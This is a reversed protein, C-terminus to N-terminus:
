YGFSHLAGIQEPTLAIQGVVGSENTWTLVIMLEQKRGEQVRGGYRRSMLNLRNGNGVLDLNKDTVQNYYPEETQPETGAHAALQSAPDPESGSGTSKTENLEKTLDGVKKVLRLAAGPIEETVYTVGEYFWSCALTSGIGTEKTVTMIPGGSLFEVQDGIQFKAETAPSINTVEPKTAEAPTSAWVKYWEHIQPDLLELEDPKFHSHRGTLSRVKVEPPRITSGESLLEIWFTMNLRKHFALQGINESVERVTM